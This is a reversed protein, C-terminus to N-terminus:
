QIFRAMDRMEARSDPLYLGAETREDASVRGKYSKELAKRDIDITDNNKSLRKAEELIKLQAQRDGEKKARYWKNYLRRKRDQLAMDLGKIGRNADYVESLKSPAIGAAQWGIQWPSFDEVLVDGQLNDAGYREYRVAKSIDRLAKPAMKEFGKWYQGDSTILDLGSAMSYTMSGMPGLVQTIVHQYVERPSADFEPDRYFLDSLSVRSHMDLGTLGNFGGKAIVEGITPGFLDALQNRFALEADWVEDDDTEWASALGLLFGAMPMGLVGGALAHLGVIGLLTNRAEVKEAKTLNQNRLWDFAKRGLIHAINFSYQKFIFIVKAVNGKMGLARNEASYDFHAELVAEKAYKIAADTNGPNKDLFLRYASLAATERNIVEANHFFIGAVRSATTIHQNLRRSEPRLDTDAVQAQTHTATVDIIGENILQNIMDIEDQSVRNGAKARSLTWLSENLTLKGEGAAAWDALAKTMAAGTKRYGFKGGLVPLAVLPNQTLNIMGAGVSGGLFWLFAANTAYASIKNGQPNMLSDHRQRMQDTVRMASPMDQEDISTAINKPDSEERMRDLQEEMLYGYKTRVLRAAGHIGHDAFARRSNKNFGATGQRHISHKAASLDPLMSLAIQNVEGMFQERVEPAVDAMAQEDNLVKYIEAAMRSNGSMESGIYEAMKGSSTVTHGDRRLQDRAKEMTAEDEYHERFYVPGNPTDLEGIIVFDGFRSLPFYVGELSATNFEADIIAKVKGKAGSRGLLAYAKEVLAKKQDNWMDGYFDRVQRYVDQATPSLKSWDERLQKYDQERKMETQMRQLLNESLKTAEEALPQIYFGSVNGQESTHKRIEYLGVPGPYTDQKLMANLANQASEESKYWGGKDDKSPSKIKQGRPFYNDLAFIQQRLRETNDKSHFAESPDIGALSSAPMIAELRDYDQSNVPIKGWLQDIKDGRHAWIQREGRFKDLLNQYHTLPNKGDMKAFLYKGMAEIQRGNSFRLLGKQLTGKLRRYQRGLGKVAEEEGKALSALGEAARRFPLAGFRSDDYQSPDSSEPFYTGNETRYIVDAIFGNMDWSSYPLRGILKRILRKIRYILRNLPASKIPNQAARSLIEEAKDRDSRDKYTVKVENWLEAIGPDRNVANLLGQILSERESLPLADIAFHGFTEHRLVEHTDTYSRLNSAFLYATNTGRIYVGPNDPNNQKHNLQPLDTTENLVKIRLNKLGPYQAKFKAAAREVAPINMKVQKVLRQRPQEKSQKKRLLPQIAASERRYAVIGPAADPKDLVLIKTNVGTPRFSSKFADAEVSEFWGDNDEVFQKFDQDKARQRDGSTAAMVAVLRGGPKLQDFAHRVHDMDQGDEFPPNMVVRDYEGTHEMFDTEPQYGKTELFNRLTKQIEITTIAADPTAAKIRDAIDGKGASPELVSMGSEVGAHELLQNVVKEPTPFFGPFKQGVLQLEAEKIRDRKVAEVGKEVEYLERLAYRLTRTDTIGMKRLRDRKLFPEYVAEAPWKLDSTSRKDKAFERIKPLVERYARDNLDVIYGDTAALLKGLKQATQKYGKATNMAEMLTRLHDTNVTMDFRATAVKQNITVGQKWQTDGNSDTEVLDQNNNRQAGWRQRNRISLLEELQTNANLRSVLKAMGQEAADAIRTLLRGHKISNEAAAMAYGAERARKATNTKRDASLAAEGGSEFSGAMDRLKSIRKEEATQQKQQQNAEASETEGSLVNIFRQRDETTTFQFGPIAGMKSYGSHWGGLQKAKSRLENFRDSEVRGELGVVFLDIGKKAHTTEATTYAVDGAVGSVEAKAQEAAREENLAKEVVLADLQELQDPSLNREGKYQIFKQFDSYTEPNTLAKAHDERQKKWEARRTRVNEVFSNYDEETVSRIREQMRKQYSGEGLQTVLLGGSGDDKDVALTRLFREYAATVLETKKFDNHMFSMLGHIQDKTMGSIEARIADGRELVAGAMKQYEAFPMDGDNMTYIGQMFELFTAKKWDQVGAKDEVTSRSSRMTHATFDEEQSPLLYDGNGMGKFSALNAQTWSKFEAENFSADSSLTEEYVQRREVTHQEKHERLQRRDTQHQQLVENLWPRQDVNKKLTSDSQLLLDLYDTEFLTRDLGTLPKIPDLYSQAMSKFRRGQTTNQKEAFRVLNYVENQDYRDKHSDLDGFRTTPTLHKARRDTTEAERIAEILAQKDGTESYRSIAGKITGTAVAEIRLRRGYQKLGELNEDAPFSSQLMQEFTNPNDEKAEGIFDLAQTRFDGETVSNNVLERAKAIDGNASEIASVAVTEPSVMLDDDEKLVYDPRDRVKFPNSLQGTKSVTKETSLENEKLVNETDKQSQDHQEKTQQWYRYADSRAGMVAKLGGESAHTKDTKELAALTKEPYQEFGKRLGRLLSPRFASKSAGPEMMAGLNGGIDTLIKRLAQNDQKQKAKATDQQVQETSRVQKVAQRVVAKAQEIKSTLTSQAKDDAAGRKNAQNANFNSRGAIHSSVVGSRVSFYDREAALYDDKYQQIATRLAQQQVATEASPSVEDHLDQVSKVFRERYGAPASRSSHQFANQAATIHYEGPSVVLHENTSSEAPRETEAERLVELREVTQDFLDDSLSEAGWFDTKLDFWLKANTPIPASTGALPAIDKNEFYIRNQDNKNWERGITKLQNIFAPNDPHQTKRSQETGKADTKQVNKTDKKPRSPKPPTPSDDPDAYEDLKLVQKFREQTEQQTGKYKNAAIKKEITSKGASKKLEKIKLEVAKATGSDIVTSTEPHIITFTKPEQGNDGITLEMGHVKDERIPSFVVFNERGYTTYVLPLNYNQALQYANEWEIGGLARLVAGKPSTAAASERRIAAQDRKLWDGGTNNKFGPTKQVQKKFTQLREKYRAVKFTGDGPVDFRVFGGSHEKPARTIAKDLEKLLWSKAETIDNFQESTEVAEDLSERIVENDVEEIQGQEDTHTTEAPSAKKLQDVFALGTEIDNPHEQKLADRQWAANKNAGAFSMHKFVSKIEADTLQDIRPSLKEHAKTLQKEETDTYVAQDPHSSVLEQMLEYQTKSLDYSSNNKRASYQEKYLTSKNKLLKEIERYRKMDPLNENTAGPIVTQRLAKLEGKLKDERAQVFQRRMDPTYGDGVLEEVMEQHTVLRGNFRIKKNLHDTRRKEQAKTRAKDLNTNTKAKTEETNKEDKKLIKKTDKKEVSKQATFDTSQQQVPILGITPSEASWNQVAAPTTPQATPQPRQSNRPNSPTKPKPGGPTGPGSDDPGSDDSSSSDDSRNIFKPHTELLPLLSDAVTSNDALQRALQEGQPKVLDRELGTDVLENAIRRSETKPLSRLWAKAQDKMKQTWGQQQQRSKPKPAKAKPRAPAADLAKLYSLMMAPNTPTGDNLSQMDSQLTAKDWDSYLKENQVQREAEARAKHAAEEGAKKEAAKIDDLLRWQMGRIVPDVVQSTQYQNWAHEIDLMHADKQGDDMQDFAKDRIAQAIREEDETAQRQERELRQDFDTQWAKRWKVEGSLDGYLEAPLGENQGRPTSESQDPNLNRRLQELNIDPQSQKSNELKRRWNPQGKKTIRVQLRGNDDTEDVLQLGLRDADINNQQMWSRAQQRTDFRYDRVNIDPADARRGKREVSWQGDGQEAPIHSQEMNQSKLYTRAAAKSNFRLKRREKSQASYSLGSMDPTLQGDDQRRRQRPTYGDQPRTPNLGVEPANWGALQEIQQNLQDRTQTLQAATQQLQQDDPTLQLNSQAQRLQNDVGTRQQELQRLQKQQEQRQLNLRQAEQEPALTAPQQPTQQPQSLGIGNREGTQELQQLQLQKKNALLTNVQQQLQPNDPNAALQQQANVLQQHLNYIQNDITEPQQTTAQNPNSAASSDTPANVMALEAMAKQQTIQRLGAVAEDRKATQEDLQQSLAQVDADPTQMQKQLFQIKQDSQQAQQTLVASQQDAQEVMRGYDGQTPPKYGRNVISGPVGALGGSTLGLLGGMAAQEPVEQWVSRNDIDTLETNAAWQQGGSEFTEQGMENLGAMTTNKVVGQAGKGVLIKELQPGLAAMSVFGVAAAKGFAGTAMDNALEDKASDFAARTDNPNQEFARSYYDQFAESEYLTQDDMAIVEQYTQEGAGGGVMTGGAVGYGLRGGAMDITKDMKALKGALPTMDEAKNAVDLAKKTKSYAPALRGVAQLGRGAVAGAGVSPVMSGIGEYTGYLLGKATIEDDEGFGLRSVAEVTSPRRDMSLEDAESRLGRSLANPQGLTVGQVLDATGGLVGSGISKLSDWESFPNGRPLTREDFRAKFEPVMDEPIQHQEVLSNFFDQRAFERDVDDGAQYHDSNKVDDWTAM